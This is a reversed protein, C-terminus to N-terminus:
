KVANVLLLVKKLFPTVERLDQVAEDVEYLIRLGKNNNWGDEGIPEIELFWKRQKYM